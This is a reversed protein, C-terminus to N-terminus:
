PPRDPDDDDLDVAALARLAGRKAAWRAPSVGRPRPLEPPHEPPPPPSTPRGPVPPCITATGASHASDAAKAFGKEDVRPFSEGRVRSAKRSEACEASEARNEGPQGRRDTARAVRWFTHGGGIQEDTLVIGLRRLRPRLERFRRAIAKGGGLFPLDAGAFALSNLIDTATGRLGRAPVYALFAGLLPEEDTVSVLQATGLAGLDTSAHKPHLVWLVRGFDVFRGPLGAPAEDLRALVAAAQRALWSLIGDRHELVQERLLRDPKARGRPLEGLFLPLVRDIM